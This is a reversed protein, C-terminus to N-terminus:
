EGLAYLHKTTRLYLKNDAIAPTAFIKEYVTRPLRRQMAELNFTHCGFTTSVPAPVERGAAAPASPAAAFTTPDPM